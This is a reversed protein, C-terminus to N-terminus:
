VNNTSSIINSTHNIKTSVVFVVYVHRFSTWTKFQDHQITTLKVLTESSHILMSRHINIEVNWRKLTEIEMGQLNRMDYFFFAPFGCLSLQKIRALKRPRDKKKINELQSLSLVCKQITIACQVHTHTIDTTPFYFILLVPINDANPSMGWIGHSELDTKSQEM